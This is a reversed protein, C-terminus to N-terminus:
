GRVALFASLFGYFRDREDLMVWHSSRDFRRNPLAERTLFEQSEPSLSETGWCYVRPLELLRYIEGIVGVGSTSKTENLEYIEHVSALFAENQCMSLSAVYRVCSPWEHSWKIVQDLTFETRLWDDFRGAREATIAQDTIFRDHPTLDGEINVFSTVRNAHQQCFLTGIDGGMSHGVLNLKDVGIEGLLTCIRRIQVPFAYDHNAAPSSKGFGLLDPVVINYGDLLSEHFAEIFCLGSEGLGHIFLVTPRDAVIDTHRYYLRGGEVDNTTERM